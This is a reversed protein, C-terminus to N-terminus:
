KILGHMKLIDNMIPELENTDKKRRDSILKKDRGERRTVWEILAEKGIDHRRKETSIYRSIRDWEENNLEYQIRM